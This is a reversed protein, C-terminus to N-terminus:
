EDGGKTRATVLHSGPGNKRIDEMGIGLERTMIDMIKPTCFGGQCRGMQSGTRRKIGDLTRAGLPARIADIIEGETVGACRCVIVGYAPNQAIKKAQEEYSLPKMHVIDRQQAIFDQKEKLTYKERIQQAIMEAIAPSASLGPSEIGACNFFGPADDPEGLVFDHGQESARLGSFSTIVQGIPLDKISNSQKLIVQAIGEETTATQERDDTEFATPGVITNGHVTPSVLVGKGMTTPLQFVTHTVYGEVTTDLLLYDGRRPTICLQHSSVMNNLVDAYVGAANVVARTHYVERDTEIRWLEGDRAIHQVEEGFRFEVGNEAANEAFAATMRFPCVIGATPAYLAGVVDDALHPEIRLAEDRSLVSLGEVGNREGRERLQELEGLREEQTCVTLSGIRFFPISLEKSLTDMMRNGRVNLKAKWTGNEADYGSHIIASNAKSTGTCVDESREIVLMAGKSRSLERAVACGVVGAGIIIVDYIM